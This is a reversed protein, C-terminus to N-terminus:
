FTYGVNFHLQGVSEGLRRDLALGYDFVVPVLGFALWRFGLGTSYRLEDAALDIFDAQLQGVDVFWAGYLDLSPVLPFRLELTGNVVVDGFTAVGSGSVPGLGNDPFGRVGAVGGLRFRDSLPLLLREELPRNADEPVEFLSFAGGLAFGFRVYSGLVFRRGLPLFHGFTLQVRSFADGGLFVDAIDFRAEAFYGRNPNIPSDRRDMTLVPSVSFIIQELFDTDDPVTRSQNFRLQTELSFTLGRIREFERRVLASLGVEREQAPTSLLDYAGRLAVQLEWADDILDFYYFRRDLYAVEAGAIFEADGVRQPNTVDLEFSGGTRLEAAQGFFNRDRYAVETDALVRFEDDVRNQSALGVRAEITATTAEEVAIVIGVQGEGAAAEEEGITTGTVSDFVGLSRLAALSEILQQNVFRDGERFLLERRMVAENTEYNGRVITPGVDVPEAEVIHHEVTIRRPATRWPITCAAEGAARLCEVVRQRGERRETCREEDYVMCRAPLGYADCALGGLGEDDSADAEASAPAGPFPQGAPQPNEPPPEDAAYCTAELLDLQYGRAGYARLIAAADAQLAAPGFPESRRLNLTRGLYAGSLVENGRFRVDEVLTRPGENVFLTIYLAQDDEAVLTWRPVQAWLFGLERYYAEINRIDAELQAPQLYGASELVGFERTSMLERLREPDGFETGEFTVARIEMRPGEDIDFAVRVDGSPLPEYRGRVEAFYHGETLYLAEIEAAAARVEAADIFGTAFFSLSELLEQDEFLENGNFDVVHFPGERVEVFLDVEGSLPRPVALHTTVRAALYGAERYAELLTDRGADFADETYTRIFGLEDLLLRRVEAPEIASAGRVYVAAVDLREGRSVEVNLDVLYPGVVEADIDVAVASYGDDRFIARIADAQRDIEDNDGTYPRGPRLFMRAEIDSRLTSGSDIHVERIFVQPETEIRVAVGTATPEGVIQVTTFLGTELLAARARRAAEDGFAQGPLLGSLRLLRDRRAPEQCRPLACELEVSEIRSQAWAAPPGFVVSAALLAAGVLLGPRRRAPSARRRRHGSGEGSAEGVAETSSSPSACAAAM